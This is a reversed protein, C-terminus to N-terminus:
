LGLSSMRGSTIQTHMKRARVNIRSSDNVSSPFRDWGKNADKEVDDNAMRATTISNQQKRDQINTKGQRYKPGANLINFEDSIESEKNYSVERRIKRGDKLTEETYVRQKM